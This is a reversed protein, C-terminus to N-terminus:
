NSLYNEEIENLIWKAYHQKLMWIPSEVILSLRIPQRYPTDSKKLKILIEILQCNRYMQKQQNREGM